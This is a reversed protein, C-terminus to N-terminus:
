RTKRERPFDHDPLDNIYKKLINIKQGGGPGSMDSGKWEVNEGINEFEFNNFEASHCLKQCKTPDSGITIAHTKFDVFYSWKDTPDVDTGCESRSRPNVVAERYALPRLEHMMVPLYEDVPIINQRAKSTVLKRAAEPTM